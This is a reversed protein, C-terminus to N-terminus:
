KQLVKIQEKLTGLEAFVTQLEGRQMTGVSPTITEVGGSYEIRIEEVKATFEDAGIRVAVVSGIDYDDPFVNRNIETVTLKYGFQASAKELEEYAANELRDAVSAWSESTDENRKIDTRSVVGEIRGWKSISGADYVICSMTDDNADPGGTVLLWNAKPESVTREWKSISGNDVSFIVKDSVDAPDGIMVAWTGTGLDWTERIQIDTDKLEDQVFKLLADLKSEVTLSEGTPTQVPIVLGSLKRASLADAGANDEIMDLMLKSLTGTATYSADPDPTADTPDPFVLRGALKGLFSQGTVQWDYIRTKADYETVKKEAYGCFLPSSKRFVVLSVGDALPCEELGSGNITWRAPENFRFTVSLSVIGNILSGRKGEDTLLYFEYLM